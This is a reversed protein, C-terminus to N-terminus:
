PAPPAKVEYSALGDHIAASLEDTRGHVWGPVSPDDPELEDTNSRDTYARQIHPEIQIAFADDAAVLSVVYQLVISRDSMQVAGGSGANEVAGDESFIKNETVLQHENPDVGEIKYHAAVAGQVAQLMAAPDGQYRANRARALQAASPGCAGALSAALLLVVASVTSIRM